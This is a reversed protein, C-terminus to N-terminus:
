GVAHRLSRGLDGRETVKIRDLDLWAAMSSLEEALEGAVHRKDIGKEGWASRVLLSRNERDAKLDARAVLREGLLFPLVYYGYVRKAPPTYIEIRYGFGFLRHIRDRNWVLSDFPSLLARAHVSRPRAAEPHLYAPRSWGQVNAPILRGEELLEALPAKCKTPTLRYYEALDKLTGLGHHRGALVLLEKCADHESLGPRELVDGPLVRETVDYVRAFDQPRRRATVRGRYLLAELAAKTDSHDWWTGRKRSEVELDSAVVPGEELVRRYVEDVFSGLRQVRRRFGPWRFNGKMRWEFLPRHVAPLFSAEHGWYEFLEGDQAADQVLTRPHPGLRAFLPLEHSRVLVNVSDIQLLGVRRIVRRLHRRDVRGHPRPDTFGQSALAIRRAQQQNLARAV